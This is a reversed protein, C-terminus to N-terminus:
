MTQSSCWAAVVVLCRLTTRFVECCPMPCRCPADACAVRRAGSEQLWRLLLAVVLQTYPEMVEGDAIVVSLARQMAAYDASHRRLTSLFESRLAELCSPEHRSLAVMVDFVASRAAPTAELLLSEVETWVLSAHEADYHYRHLSALM